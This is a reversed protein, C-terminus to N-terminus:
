KVGELGTNIQELMTEVPIRRIPEVEIKNIFFGIFFTVLSNQSFSLKPYIDLYGNRIEINIKDPVVGVKNLKERMRNINPNKKDPDWAILFRNLTKKGIETVDLYGEPNIGRGEFHSVFSLKSKNYNIKSGPIEMDIGSLYIDYKKEKIDFRFNGGINGGLFSGYLDNFLVTKKYAKLDGSIKEAIFNKYKFTSMKINDENEVEVRDKYFYYPINLNLNGIVLDNYFIKRIDVKFKIYNNKNNYDLFINGSSNLIQYKDNKFSIENIISEMKIRYNKYNFGNGNIKGNLILEGSMDYDKFRHYYKPLFGANLKFTKIYFNFRKKSNIDGSISVINEGKDMLKLKNFIIKRDKTKFIFDSSVKLQPIFIKNEFRRYDLNSFEFNVITKLNDVDKGKLLIIGNVNAFLPINYYKLYNIKDLEIQYDINKLYNSRGKISVNGGYGSFQIKNILIEEVNKYNKIKLNSDLQIDKIKNIDDMYVFESMFLKNKIDFDNIKGSVEIAGNLNKLKFKDRNSISINNLNVKGYLLDNNGKLNVSVTGAGDYKFNKNFNNNIIETISILNAKIKFYDIIYNIEDFNNLNNISFKGDIIKNKNVEFSIESIDLAKSSINNEAMLNLRILKAKQLLDKIMVFTKFKIINDFKSINVRMEYPFKKDFDSIYIFSNDKNLININFKSQQFSNKKIDISSIVSVGEIKYNKGLAINIDDLFLSEISLDYPINDNIINQIKSYTLQKKKQKESNNNLKKNQVELIVDDKESYYKIDINKIKLHNIIKKNTFISIPNINLDINESLLNINKNKYKIKEIKFDAPLIYEINNIEIQNINDNIYNEFYSSNLFIFLFLIFNILLLFIVIFSVKLINKLKRM